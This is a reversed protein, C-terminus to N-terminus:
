QWETVFSVALNLVVLHRAQRLGFVLPSWHQILILGCPRLGPALDGKRNQLDWVRDIETYSYPQPRAPQCESCSPALAGPLEKEEAARWMIVSWQLFDKLNAFKLPVNFAYVRSRFLIRWFFQGHVRSYLFMGAWLGEHLENLPPFVLCPRQVRWERYATYWHAEKTEMSRTQTVPIDM